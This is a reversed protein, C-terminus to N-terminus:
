GTLLFNFKFTARPASEAAFTHKIASASPFVSPLLWYKNLKFFVIPASICQGVCCQRRVVTVVVSVGNLRSGGVKVRERWELLPFCFFGLLRDNHKPHLTKLKLLKFFKSGLTVGTPPRWHHSGELPFTPTGLTLCGSRGPRLCCGHWRFVHLRLPWVFM